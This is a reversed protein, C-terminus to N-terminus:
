FLDGIILSVSCFVRYAYYSNNQTLSDGIYNKSTDAYMLTVEQKLAISNPLDNFRIGRLALCLYKLDSERKVQGIRGVQECGKM